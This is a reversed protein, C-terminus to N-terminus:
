AEEGEWSLRLFSPQLWTQILPGRHSFDLNYDAKGFLREIQEWGLHSGHPERSLYLFAAYIFFDELFFSLYRWFSGWFHTLSIELLIVTFDGVGQIFSLEEHHDITTWSPGHNYVIYLTKSDERDRWTNMSYKSTRSHSLDLNMGPPMGLHQYMAMINPGQRLGAIWSHM